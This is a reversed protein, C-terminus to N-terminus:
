SYSWPDTYWKKFIRDFRIETQDCGSILYAQVSLLSGAHKYLTLLTIKQRCGAPSMARDEGKQLVSTSLSAVIFGAEKYM